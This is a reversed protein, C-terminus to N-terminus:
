LIWISFFFLILSLLCWWTLFIDFEKIDQGRNEDKKLNSYIQKKIFIQTALFIGSLLGVVIINFNFSNVNWLEMIFFIGLCGIVFSSTTYKNIYDREKSVAIFLLLFLGNTYLLFAAVSYNSFRITFFYFFIVLPNIIALSILNKGHNKIVKILFARSFLKSKIMVLNIFIIGFLGRFFVISFISYNSLLDIFLGVSGMLISSVFISLRSITIKSLPFNTENGLRVMM